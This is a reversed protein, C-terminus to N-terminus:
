CGDVGGAVVPNFYAYTSARAPTTVRLLWVYATFVLLDLVANWSRLSAHALNTAKWDGALLGALLLWVGM